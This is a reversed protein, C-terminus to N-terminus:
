KKKNIKKQTGSGISVMKTTEGFHNVVTRASQDFTVRAKDVVQLFNRWDQHELLPALNGASWFEEGM